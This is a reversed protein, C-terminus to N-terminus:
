IRCPHLARRRKEGNRGIVILKKELCHNAYQVLDLPLGDREAGGGGKATPALGYPVRRRHGDKLKMRGYNMMLRAVPGGGREARRPTSAGRQRM